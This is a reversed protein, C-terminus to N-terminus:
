DHLNHGGQNETFFEPQRLKGVDHYYAAARALEVDEGLASACSEVLQAVIMSHNFTGPAEEKLRKLLKADSGTLERLRFPTLVSFMKEFIPLFAFFLVASLMSGGIGAAVQMLANGVSTMFHNYDSIQLLLIIIVAPIAVLAGTSLVGSRTKVSKGFFLAFMGGIFCLMLSCLMENNVAGMYEDYKTLVDFLFMQLSFVTNLFVASRYNVLFLVLLAVLAMPRLYVYGTLFSMAGSVLVGVDMILFILWVNKMETLFKREDFFYFLYIIWDLLFTCALAFFLVPLNDTVYASFAGNGRHHLFVLLLAIGVQLCFNLVFNFVSLFVTGGTFRKGESHAATNGSM